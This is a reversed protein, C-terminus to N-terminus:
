LGKLVQSVIALGTSDSEKDDSTVYFVALPYKHVLTSGGWVHLAYDKLDDTNVILGTGKFWSSRDYTGLMTAKLDSVQDHYDGLKRTTRTEFKSLDTTDFSTILATYLSHGLLFRGYSGDVGVQAVTIFHAPLHETNGRYADLEDCPVGLSHIKLSKGLAKKLYESLFVDRKSQAREVSCYGAPFDVKFALADISFDAAHANMGLVLTFTAILTCIIRKLM